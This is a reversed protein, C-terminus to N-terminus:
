AFMKSRQEYDALVTTSGLCGNNPIQWELPLNFLNTFIILYMHFTGTHHGNQLSAIIPMTNMTQLLSCTSAWTVTTHPWLMETYPLKGTRYNGFYTYDGKGAGVIVCTSFSGCLIQLVNFSDCLWSACHIWYCIFLSCEFIYLWAKIHCIASAQFIADLKTFNM